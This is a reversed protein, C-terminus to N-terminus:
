GAAQLIARRILTEFLPLKYGNRALPTAGALAARAAAAAVDRDVVKGALVAEATAARHPVPAAAGLIIAARRCAGNNDREIAVAVEALPWDFAAKQNQRLYVMVTGAPQPPLVVATLVELPQLENERQLDRDPPVMFAELKMARTSGAADTLEITADLAVLATALSSPHVIACLSNDFIAHYQSEGAIAFCHGGGKRLCRYAQSRFYWCHPRQLLNGGLTAVNRLQPSASGGVADALAPYHQRLLPHDALTALTAMPGIRVAGGDRATVAGLEPVDKLNVLKAPTLLGEKMLDLIDIGGAKVISVDGEADPRPMAAMAAAVTATASGAAEALSRPSSLAFRNV